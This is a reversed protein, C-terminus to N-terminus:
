SGALAAEKGDARMEAIQDLLRRAGMTGALSEAEDLLADREEDKGLLSGIRAAEIRAMTGGFRHAIADHGAIASSLLDFAEVLNGNAEALAARGVGMDAIPGPGVPHAAELLSALEAAM